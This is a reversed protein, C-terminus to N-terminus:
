GEFCAKLSATLADMLALYHAQGLPLAAGLPDVEVAKLGLTETVLATTARPTSPETILCAIKAETELVERLHAAGGAQDDADSLAAHSALGYRNELYQLADHAVLFSQGKFAALATEATKAKASIAAAAQAANAEYHAANEPDLKALEAAILPLWHAANEPSLWVHPDHPAAESEHTDHDDHDHGHEEHGHDDHGHDDNAEDGHDHHHAGRRALRLTGETDMLALSAADPAMEGLADNLWPSNAAGVWVVLAADSLRKAESPRLAHHHPSSGARTLLEPAALDGMVMAVLSHVPPVDAVVRPPEAAASLPSLLAAAAFFAPAFRSSM